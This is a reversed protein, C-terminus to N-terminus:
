RNRPELLSPRRAHRRRADGARQPAAVHSLLLIAARLAAGYKLQAFALAAKIEDERGPGPTQLAIDLDQDLIVHRRNRRSHLLLGRPRDGSERGVAVRSPFFI